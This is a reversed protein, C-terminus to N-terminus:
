WIEKKDAYLVSKLSKPSQGPKMLVPQSSKQYSDASAITLGCDLLHDPLDKGSFVRSELGRSIEVVLNSSGQAEQAKRRMMFEPHQLHPHVVPSFNSTQRTHNLGSDPDNGIDLSGM